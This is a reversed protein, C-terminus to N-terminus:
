YYTKFENSYYSKHGNLILLRYTGETYSATHFDFHWIWDM